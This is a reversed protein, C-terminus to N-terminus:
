PALLNALLPGVQENRMEGEAVLEAGRQTLRMAALPALVPDDRLARQLSEAMEAAEACAKETVCGVFGRFRAREQVDLAVGLLRVDPIAGLATPSVSSAVLQSAGLRGRIVGHLQDRLRAAEDSLSAGGAEDLVDRLYKGGSIVFLGDGRIAVEGAPKARDRVATFGGLQSRVPTGGRKAIMQEACRLVPEPALKTEAIFAFDNSGEPIAFAVRRMALLPEFGCRETLGLFSGIGARLLAPGAAQTLAEVDATILLKPGAPVADAPDVRGSATSGRSLSRRVFWGAALIAVLLLLWNVAREGSRASSLM